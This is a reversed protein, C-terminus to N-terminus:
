RAKRLLLDNSTLTVRQTQKPLCTISPRLGTYASHERKAAPASSPAGRDSIGDSQEAHTKSAPGLTISPSLLVQAHASEVTAAVPKCYKYLLQKNVQSLQQTHIANSPLMPLLM